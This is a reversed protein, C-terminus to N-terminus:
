KVELGIKFAKIVTKYRLVCLVENFGLLDCFNGWKSRHDFM